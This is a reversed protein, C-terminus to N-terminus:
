EILDDGVSCSIAPANEEYRFDGYDQESTCLTSGIFNSDVLIAERLDADQLDAGMFLSDEIYANGFMVNTLTADRFDAEILTADDLNALNFYTGQAVARGFYAETLNARSLDAGSIDALYFNANNLDADRLDVGRLDLRRLDADALDCGVCTRETILRELDDENVASAPATFMWGSTVVLGAILFSRHPLTRDRHNMMYTRGHTYAATQQELVTM